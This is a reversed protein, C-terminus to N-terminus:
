EEISVVFTLVLGCTFGTAHAIANTFMGADGTSPIFTLMFLCVVIGSYTTYVINESNQRWVASWDSGAFLLNRPVIGSLCALLGISLLVLLSPTLAAVENGVLGLGVLVILGAVHGARLKNYETGLFLTLIALLMGGFATVVGSFGRSTAGEAMLDWRLHLFWYDITTTVFPTLLFILVATIWFRRRQGLKRFFFFAPIVGISYALLNSALHSADLHVLAATWATTLTPNHFRFVFMEKIPTPLLFHVLVLVIPVVALSVIDIL